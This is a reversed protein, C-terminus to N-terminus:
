LCDLMLRHFGESDLREGFCKLALNIILEKSLVFNCAKAEEQLREILVQNDGHIAVSTVVKKYKQEQRISKSSSRCVSALFHNCLTELQDLMNDHELKSNYLASANDITFILDLKKSDDIDMKIVTNKMNEFHKQDEIDNNGSLINNLDCRSYIYDCRSSKEGTQEGKM